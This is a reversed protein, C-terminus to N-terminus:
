KSGTACAVAVTKVLFGCDENPLLYVPSIHFIEWKQLLHVLVSALHSTQQSIPREKFLNTVLADSMLIHKTDAVGNM